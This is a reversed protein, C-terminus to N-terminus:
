MSAGILIWCMHNVVSGMYMHEAIQLDIDSIKPSHCRFCNKGSTTFDYPWAAIVFNWYIGFYQLIGKGIILVQM